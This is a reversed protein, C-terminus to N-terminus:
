LRCCLCNRCTEAYFKAQGNIQGRSEIPQIQLNTAEEEEEEEEGEWGHKLTVSFFM